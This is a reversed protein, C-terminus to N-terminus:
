IRGQPTYTLDWIEGKVQTIGTVRNGGPRCTSQSVLEGTNDDNSSLCRILTHNTSVQIIITYFRELYSRTTIKMRDASVIVFPEDPGGDSGWLSMNGVILIM